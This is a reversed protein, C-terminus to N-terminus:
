APCCGVVPGPAPRAAQARRTLWTLVDAPQRPARSVRPVPARDESALRHRLEAELERERQQHLVYYLDPHM